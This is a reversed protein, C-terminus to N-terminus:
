ANPWSFTSVVLNRDAAISEAGPNVLISGGVQVVGIFVQGTSPVVGTFNMDIIPKFDDGTVEGIRTWTGAGFAANERHITLVMTVMGNRRHLFRYPMDIGAVPTVLGTENDVARLWQSGNSVFAAGTPHEWIVRGIEHPPRTTSTCLIQGDTGVYWARNKVKAAAIVTVGPDVTVEALPLEWVGSTGTNYTPAPAGAGPTGQVVAARVTFTTRDLRLVVLDVRVSGSSNAALSPLVVATGDTEWGYGEVVARRNAELRVERTGTNPAWVVPNNAPHGAVGSAAAGGMLREHQSQTVGPNPYSLEAM